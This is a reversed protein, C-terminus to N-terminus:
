RWSCRSSRPPPRRRDDLHLGGGPPRRGGSTVDGMTWYAAQSVAGLLISAHALHPMPVRRCYFGYAVSGAICGAALLSLTAGFFQESLGMQETVHLYVVTTSLPDLSWLFLFAAVGLLTPSRGARALAARTERFTEGPPRPEEDVWRWALVFTALALGGCILFGAAELGHQSLYGGTVGVLLTAAYTASWQVSQLVGTLGRPQGKEVMLADVLVDGFAIAFTPAVLLVLFLAYNGPEPRFGYLAAFGAVSLLSTALLYSRRRSGWLPLFDSVLGYLPKLSWPLSVAAAFTAIAAPSEGWAKLISRVPQAILGAVPEGAGQVFYLVAFLVALRRASDEGSAALKM